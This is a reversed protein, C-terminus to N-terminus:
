QRYEQGKQCKWVGLSEVTREQVLHRGPFLKGSCIQKLYPHNNLTLYYDIEETGPCVNYKRPTTSDSSGPGEVDPRGDVLLFEPDGIITSDLERDNDGTLFDM